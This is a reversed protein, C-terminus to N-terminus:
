IRKMDKYRVSIMSLRVQLRAEHKLIALLGLKNVTINYTPM